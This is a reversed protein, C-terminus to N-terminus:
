SPLAPSSPPSLPLAFALALCGGLGAVPVIRMPRGEAPALTWASANAISYYALM